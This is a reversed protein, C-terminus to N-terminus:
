PSPPPPRGPSVSPRPPLPRSQRAKWYMASSLPRSTRAHSRWGYRNVWRRPGGRGKRAYTLKTEINWGPGSDPALGDEEFATELLLDVVKWAAGVLLPRIRLTEVCDSPDPRSRRNSGDHFTRGQAGLDITMAHSPDAVTPLLPLARQLMDRELASEEDFDNWSM